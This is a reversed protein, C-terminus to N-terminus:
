FAEPPELVSAQFTEEEEKEPLPKGLVKELIDDDEQHRYANMFFKDAIAGDKDALELYKVYEARLRKVTAAMMRANEIENWIKVSVKQRCEVIKDYEDRERKYRGLIDGKSQLAERYKDWHAQSYALSSTVSRIPDAAKAVKDSYEGGSAYEIDVRSTTENFALLITDADMQDLFNWPGVEFVIQDPNPKEVAIEAPPEEPLLPVGDFACELDILRVIQEHELALLEEDTFKDFRKM